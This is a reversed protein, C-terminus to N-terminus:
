GRELADNLHVEKMRRGRQTKLRDAMSDNSGMYAETRLKKFYDGDENKLAAENRMKAELADKDREYQEARAIKVDKLREHQKADDRMQAVKAAQEEPSLRKTSGRSALSDEKMKLLREEQEQRRSKFDGSPGLHTVDKVLDKLKEKRQPPAGGDASGRFSPREETISPKKEEEKKLANADSSDSSSSSSSGKKKKKAKKKLKKMLKKEKKALKKAEKIQKKMAKAAEKDEKHRIRAAILPNAMQAQKALMEQKKIQFLPDERLKRLTDESTKNSQKLFLSGAVTTSTDTLNKVDKVDKSGPADIAMSMKEEDTKQANTQEYMWDLREGGAGKMSKEAAAKLKELSANKSDTRHTAM